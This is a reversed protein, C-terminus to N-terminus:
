ELEAPPLHLRNCAANLFLNAAARSVFGDGGTRNAMYLEDCHLDACNARQDVTLKWMDVTPLVLRMTEVGVASFLMSRHHSMLHSPRDPVCPADDDYIHSAAGVLWLLRARWPRASTVRRALSRLDAEYESVTGYRMNHASSGFLIVAQPDDLGWEDIDPNPPSRCGVPPPGKAGRPRACRMHFDRGEHRASENLMWWSWRVTVGRASVCLRKGKGPGAHRKAWGRDQKSGTLLEALDFYLGRMVSDGFLQLRLAGGVSGEEGCEASGGSRPGTAAAAGAAAAGVGQGGQLQAGAACRELLEADYRLLYCSFPAWDGGVWRGASSGGSCALPSLPAELAAGGEGAADRQEGAGEGSPDAEAASANLAAGHGEESDHGEEAGRGEESDHRREGVTFNFNVAPHAPRPEGHAIRLLAISCGTCGENSPCYLPAGGGSAGIAGLLPVGVIAAAAAAGGRGTRNLAGGGGTRNDVLEGRAGGMELVDAGRRRAEHLDLWGAYRWNLWFVWATYEGPEAAILGASYRGHGLERLPSPQLLVKGEGDDGDGFGGSASAAHIVFTDGADRGTCRLYGATAAIRVEGYDMVSAPAHLEIDFADSLSRPGCREHAHRFLLTSRNVAGQHLEARAKAYVSEYRRLARAASSPSAPDSVGM